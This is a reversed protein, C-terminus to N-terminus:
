YDMPIRNDLLINLATRVAPNTNSTLYGASMRFMPPNPMDIGSLMNGTINNRVFEPVLAVINDMGVAFLLEEMRWLFNAARDKCASSSAASVSARM